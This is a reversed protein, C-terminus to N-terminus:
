ERVDQDSDRVPEVTLTEEEITFKVTCAVGALDHEREATYDGELVVVMDEGQIVTQRQQEQAKLGGGLLVLLGIAALLVPISWWDSTGRM